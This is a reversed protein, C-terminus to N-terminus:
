GWSLCPSTLAWSTLYLKHRQCGCLLLHQRNWPHGLSLPWSFQDWSSSLGLASPFLSSHCPTMSIHRGCQTPLLPKSLSLVYQLKTSGSHWFIHSFPTFFNKCIDYLTSCKAMTIMILSSSRFFSHPLAAHTALRLSPEFKWPQWRCLRTLYPLISPHSSIRCVCKYWYGDM